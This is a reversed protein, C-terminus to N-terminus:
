DAEMLENPTCIVPPEYGAQRCIREIRSRMTANAIHRFNWTVLFDIGNTVAIAIHAADEAAQRPVADLDVLAQALNEAEPTADLLSVAELTKLRAQAAEPDGSSAEVVVLQSAVLDFQDPANCWWERTIAQYAAAVMNRSPRATLYSVVSTEIYATPKM